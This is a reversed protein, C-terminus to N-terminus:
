LEEPERISSVDTVGDKESVLPLQYKIAATISGSLLFAHAIRGAKVSRM